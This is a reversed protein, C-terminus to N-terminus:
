QKVEIERGRIVSQCFAELKDLAATGAKVDEAKAAGELRMAAGTLMSYGYSGGAGKMQHALRRLGDHDGSELVKRMSEVDAELGAVFEDILEVLDADDAYESYIIEPISVQETTGSEQVEPSPSPSLQQEGGNQLYRKIINTFEQRNIPKTIYDDMGANLCKEKDGNVANATMAIIPIGHNRVSSGEDRIKRAAEYGDMEPMQCDMLVLDYDSRELSEIAEKGNIVADAHFGLKNELIHLAIKQNVMNDEALLISVRQKHDESISYQTVIQGATHKGTSASEGTVLRLCDLLQSKKLPKTLYAAFGLKRFHEADGRRGISTLMVLILDKLKPDAKIERCLSEGDMDPLCYDMLVVKFPDNVDVADGLEKMAEVASPVDEVRCNWSELYKRFIHRSTDNGDVVLVRINEIVGLEIPHQQKDSPQKELVVAFWFTSGKGEKSEVGIQGGMLEVIQKSITLGLGTGGYKRTTSADVQSFSKFLRDMRDAPIGIGTDRVAFRVTVHSETEKELNASVAVEGDNTFKMANNVLNIIVQRLKGPDGRLLLPVEPDIFCSLELNEEHAKVALIDITGDVAIHLDFDINELEMKGAEIKSFDLIDNIITLLANSSNRVTATFERQESTLKTDLLLDTMGIIGNMPTRIEHSMNALFEGKAKSAAEAANKAEKLADEGRRKAIGLSLVDAFQRMFAVENEERKHGESLYLVMVGLVEGKQMIPINYHGHPKMGEFRIDHRHDIRDSFQIDRTTATRGCLCKGFPVQACLTKLEAEINYTAALKLTAAGGTRDTLFIGGRPLGDLWPLFHLMELSQKLFGQVNQPQLTLLLLRGLIEETAALGEAKKQAEHADKMKALSVKESRRLMEEMQRRETVNEIVAVFHTTNGKDNKVPSISMHEWYLIGNKKKNCFEGHWENGSKVAKWLKKYEELPTKGSKLLRPTQGIAEEPTYGTLETFKPNTYEIKGETDTIMVSSSSQEVAQSLKRLNEESQKRETIDEKVAIFHTIVGADDKVPSISAAEWYITGNKDKNCFEGQWERGSTITEWLDKYEEPARDDSKLVRPNQGIAEEYSYGTVQTFKKNVYEIDGEINTIVVSVPSQEIAYTLKQIEAERKKRETIDRIIATFSYRGRENKQFALSMEIPVEIGEKTVGYVDVTKDMIRAEGTMLFRRLGNDHQEKYREPIITTVPQGIIEDESYGFVREASENWINVIGSEDISIIADQATGILKHYSEESEKLSELTKKHNIIEGTLEDTMKNFDAALVSIENGSIIEARNTLDGEAIKQTVGILQLIPKLVRSRSWWIFFGFALVSFAFVSINTVVKRKAASKMELIVTNAEDGAINSIALGTNIAKTAADFWASASVPYEVGKVRKIFVYFKNEKDPESNPFSPKYIMIGGSALHVCGEKGSLIQEAIDPYDRRVNHHSRNLSRMMGWEKVNDPHHLYFGEQDVLIYDDKDNGSMDKHLFLPIDVLLNFVVVGAQKGDIFVPTAFRMVPKHPYEIKGNEVNLDLSSIYIEGPSLNTSEKFYYRDSKDQLQIGHIIKTTDGDFNVRVYEQGSNDLFRIQDYIMKVQSFASFLNEVVSQREHLHVDEESKLAKALAIVSKHKSLNSLDASAGYLFHQFAKGREIIQMSAISMESEKRKSSLFVDERLSQFPQLFEKEFIEIAQRMRNSTSPHDKILLVQGLSNEVISRYHKIENQAKGPIPMGSAIANGVLARELGANECLRSLNPRIVNNLYLIEEERKQPTFTTNSLDFNNSINHTAIGLWEDKSINKYAVRIRSSQLNMYGLIWSNMTDEVTKDDNLSLFKKIEEHVQLVEADGKRGTELFNQYLLSLDGKGSGIITAGYGREIAQWGAATNLHGNIKNKIAYGESHKHVEFSRRLSMVFLVILVCILLTSVLIIQSKLTKM